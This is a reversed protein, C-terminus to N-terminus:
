RAFDALGALYGHRCHHRGRHFGCPTGAPEAVGVRHGSSRPRPAPPRAPRQGASPDSSACRAVSVCRAVSACRAVSNNTVLRVPRGLRVPRNLRVPRHGTSAPWSRLPSRFNCRSRLCRQGPPAAPPDRPAPGGARERGQRGGSRGPRPRHHSGRSEAAAESRAAAAPADPRHPRVRDRGDPLPRLQGPSARFAEYKAPKLTGLVLDAVQPRALDVDGDAPVPM